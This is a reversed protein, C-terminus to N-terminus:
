NLHAQKLTLVEALCIILVTVNSLFYISCEKWLTRSVSSSPPIKSCESCSFQSLGFIFELLPELNKWVMKGDKSWSKLSHCPGLKSNGTSLFFKRYCVIPSYQTLHTHEPSALLDATRLTLIKFSYCCNNLLFLSYDVPSYQDFSIM